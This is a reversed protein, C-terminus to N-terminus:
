KLRVEIRLNEDWSFVVDGVHGFIGSPYHSVRDGERPLTPVEVEVSDESASSNPARWITIKFMTCEERPHSM